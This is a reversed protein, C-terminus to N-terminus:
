KEGKNSQMDSSLLEQPVQAQVVIQLEVAVAEVV